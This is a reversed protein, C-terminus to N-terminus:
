NEGSECKSPVFTDVREAVFFWTSPELKLTHSGSVEDEQHAKHAPLVMANIVV